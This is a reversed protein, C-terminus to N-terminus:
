VARLQPIVGEGLITRLLQSTEAFSRRPPEAPYPDCDLDLYRRQNLEVQVAEVRPEGVFRRVTWGGAFRENRRVKFGYAAFAAELLAVTQPSATSGYQDGLIVYAPLSIGFSCSCAPWGAPDELERNVTRTGGSLKIFRNRKVPVKGAVAKEAKTVQEDIGRLTRRARDAKYEM